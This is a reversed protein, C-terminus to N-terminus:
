KHSNCLTCVYTATSTSKYSYDYTWIHNCLKYKLNEIDEISNSMNCLNSKLCYYTKNLESITDCLKLVIESNKQYTNYNMHIHSLENIKEKVKEVTNEISTNNEDLKMIIQSLEDAFNNKNM